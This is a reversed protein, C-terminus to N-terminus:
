KYQCFQQCFRQCFHQCNDQVLCYPRRAERDLWATLDKLSLGLPLVGHEGRKVPRLRPIGTRKQGSIRWTRAYGAFTELSGVMVELGTPVKEICLARGLQEMRLLLFSHYARVVRQGLFSAGPFLLRCEEFGTVIDFSQINLFNFFLLL